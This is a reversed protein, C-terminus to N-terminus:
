QFPHKITLVVTSRYGGGAFVLWTVRWYFECMRTLIHIWVSSFLESKFLFRLLGGVTSPNSFLNRFIMTGRAWRRLRSCRRHCTIRVLAPRQRRYPHHPIRIPRLRHLAAGQGRSLRRGPRMSPKPLPPFLPYLYKTIRPAPLSPM